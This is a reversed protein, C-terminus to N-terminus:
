IECPEVNFMGQVIECDEGYLALADRVAQELSVAHVGVAANDCLHAFDGAADPEYFQNSIGLGKMAKAGEGRELATRANANIKAIDVHEVAFAGGPIPGATPASSASNTESSSFIDELVALIKNQSFKEVGSILLGKNVFRSTDHEGTADGHWRLMNAVGVAMMPLPTWCLTADGTGYIRARRNKIDFGAPGKMLWMDFFPGGSIGSWELKGEKGLGELYARTKVKGGVFAEPLRRYQEAHINGVFENALYFRVGAAVAADIIIKTPAFQTQSGSICNVVADQGRFAASLSDPSTFDASAPTIKAAGTAEAAAAGLPPVYTYETGPRTIATIEFREPGDKLLEAIVARGVSGRPGLIAIKRLTM